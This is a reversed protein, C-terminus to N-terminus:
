IGRAMGLADQRSPQGPDCGGGVTARRGPRAHPRTPRHDGPHGCRSRVTEHSGRDTTPRPLWGTSSTVHPVPRCGFGDRVILLETDLTAVFTHRASYPSSSFPPRAPGYAPAPVPRCSSYHRSPPLSVPPWRAMHSLPALRGDRGVGPAGRPPPPQSASLPKFRSSFRRIMRPLLPAPWSKAWAGLALLGFISSLIISAPRRTVTRTRLSLSRQRSTAAPRMTTVKRAALAIYVPFRERDSAGASRGNQAARPGASTTSAADRGRM